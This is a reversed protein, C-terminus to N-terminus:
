PLIAWFTLGMLVVAIAMFALLGPRSTLNRVDAGIDLDSVLACLRDKLNSIDMKDLDNVDSPPGASANLQSKTLNPGRTPEMM